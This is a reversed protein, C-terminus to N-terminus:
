IHFFFGRSYFFKLQLGNDINPYIRM